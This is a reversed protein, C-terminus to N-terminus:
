STPVTVTVEASRRSENGSTDVATVAYIYTQGPQVHLDRYAPAVVTEIGPGAGPEPAIRRLPQNSTVDMRYVRYQALDPETNASWSLDVEPAGNNMVASVPVAVLGAPAAPPFTDRTAVQVAASKSSDLQLTQHALQQQVVRSATYTYQQGFQATPDLAVGPDIAATHPSNPPILRVRFKQETPETSRPLPSFSRSEARNPAAAPTM